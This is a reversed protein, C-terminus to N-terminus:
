LMEFGLTVRMLLINRAPGSAFLYWYDGIDFPIIVDWEGTFVDTLTTPNFAFTAVPFPFSANKYLNLSWNGASVVGVTASLIGCGTMRMPRIVPQPVGTGPNAYVQGGPTLLVFTDSGTVSEGYFLQEFYRVDRKKYDGLTM